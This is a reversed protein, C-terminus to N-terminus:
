RRRRLHARLAPLVLLDKARGAAEKSRILSELSATRVARSGHHLEVSDRTLDEYGDTGDPLFRVDLPGARTTLTLTVIASLWEPTIGGPVAVGEPPGDVVRFRAELDTLAAALRDLNGRDRAPTVDIGRTPPIAVDHLEIAFGGIVVYEVQHRALTDLIAGADVDPTPM